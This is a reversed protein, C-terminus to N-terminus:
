RSRDAGMEKREPLSRLLQGLDLGGADDMAYRGAQLVEAGTLQFREQLHSGILERLERRIRTLQRSATAEHEGFMRGIEALTLQQEYYAGLRLRDRPALTALAFTFAAVMAPFLRHRDPDPEPPAAPATAAHPEPLPDTRRLARIRDVYRQGLVARLWTALSSRGHYHHFLSQRVGGRREAGFLDGYLSDAVERCGGSPDAADAARYLVPRFERVFHDWASENGAACATALALDTVNLSELYSTVVGSEPTGNAFRHAVSAALRATFADVTLGWQEGGSREFLRAAVGAAITV